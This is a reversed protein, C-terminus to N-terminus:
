DMNNAQALCIVIEGSTGVDCQVVLPFDNLCNLKILQSLSNFKTLKSLKELEFSGHYIHNNEEDGGEVTLNDKGPERIKEVKVENVANFKMCNKSYTIEVIEISLLKMDRCIKQFDNSDMTVMFGVDFTPPEIEDEDVDIVPIEYTDHRGKAPNSIVVVFTNHENRTIILKVVDDSDVTSLCKHLKTIDIGAVFPQLIYYHAFEEAFLKLYVMVTNTSNMNLLGFSDTNFTINVDKVLDKLALTLQKLEAGKLTEVYLIYDSYDVDGSSVVATSSSSM